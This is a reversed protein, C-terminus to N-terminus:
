EYPKRLIEKIMLGLRVKKPDSFLHKRKKIKTSYIPDEVLHKKMEESIVSKETKVPKSLLPSSKKMEEFSEEVPIYTEEKKEAKKRSKRILFVVLVILALFMNLWNDM